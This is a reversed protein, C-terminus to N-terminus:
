IIKYDLTKRETDAGIVKFRVKDGLSYKKGTRAGKICYHKEDLAYFDDGFNRLAAMGESKTETEEIYVGWETVGSIVGDFEKGVRESMYEVKKMKVSEREAEAAGIEKETIHEALREYEAWEQAEMKEGHLHGALMRHILLDAYRRIPSTFHTYFPMALGFHGINKTSYVAKSMSRLATTKILAEEAEGEIKKFLQQLDKATVSKGTIPLHHGLARVFLALEGIKESDPLDHIRYLVPMKSKQKERAHSLFEAVERNALLMWEEVLKHTELHPKKYARIPWGDKDLEFKVEDQAFDIAGAANNKEQMIKALRNLVLLEESLIGEKKNIIEQAEEYTFRKDSRIVTRGFWRSLVEAKENIEFVASFAFKDENPNLSCLDNSLAEPLMPITRDVLYVSFGRERAEADLVTKERVFFSVDAIHVGIEYNGNQLQKFSLADDFDKADVPDITFTTVGRFDKRKPIEEVFITKENQKLLRAEREVVDPFSSAFGRALALAKMETNHEGARGIVEVIEAEPSRGPDNWPLMKILVKDEEKANGTKKADIRFDAYCRWDDPKVFFRGEEQKLVGVFKDKARKVIKMVAGLPRERQSKGGTLRVEVEDKNLACNLNETPIEIDDKGGEDEVFGVGRSNISILGTILYPHTTKKM